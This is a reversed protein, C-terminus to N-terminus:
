RDLADEEQRLFSIGSAAALGGARCLGARTILMADIVAHVGCPGILAKSIACRFAATCGDERAKM